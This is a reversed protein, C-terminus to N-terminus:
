RKFQVQNRGRKKALYLMEDASALLQDADIEELGDYCHVGISVTLPIVHSETQIPQSSVAQRIREAASVAETITTRTLMMSFEEGGYRSLLEGSRLVSRARRSFEVLVADGTLHGFSDNISKFHDLDVMLVSLPAESRRALHVERELTEQFYRKNVLSTLGDTTMLKYVVEHYQGELEDSNLYKFIQNGLRIRDGNQLVQVQEIKKDNVYTGNTSGLDVIQHAAGDAEIRAHRRSVSDDTMRLGCQPDRGLLISRNNLDVPKEIGSVPYIHVLLSSTSIAALAAEISESLRTPCLEVTM